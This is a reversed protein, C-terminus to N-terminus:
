LLLAIFKYTEEDLTTSRNCRTTMFENQNQMRSKAKDFNNYIITINAQKM